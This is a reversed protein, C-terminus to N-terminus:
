SCLSLSKSQIAAVLCEKVKTKLAENHGSNVLEVLKSLYSDINNSVLSKSPSRPSFELNSLQLSSFNATLEQYLKSVLKEEQALSEEALKIQQTMAANASSLGDIHASFSATEEEQKTVEKRLNRLQMERQKNYDLFEPTFIEIRRFKSSFEDDISDADGNTDKTSKGGKGRATRSNEHKVLWQKYEDTKKYEALKVDYAKQEARVKDYYVQKQERTMSQWIKSAYSRKENFSLSDLDNSQSCQHRLFYMFASTPKQPANPGHSRM